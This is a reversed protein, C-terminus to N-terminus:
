YLGIVPDDVHGCYGCHRCTAIVPNSVKVWLKVALDKELDEVTDHMFAPPGIKLLPRKLGTVFEDPYRTDVSDLYSSM